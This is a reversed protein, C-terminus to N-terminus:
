GYRDVVCGIYLLVIDIVLIQASYSTCHILKSGVTLKQGLSYHTDISCLYCYADMTNLRITDNGSALSNTKLCSIYAAKNVVLVVKNVVLVDYAGQAYDLM